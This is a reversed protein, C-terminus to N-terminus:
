RQCRCVVNRCMASTWYTCQRRTVGYRRALRMDGPADSSRARVSAPRREQVRSSGAGRASQRMCRRVTSMPGRGTQLILPRSSIQERLAVGPLDSPMQWECQSRERPARGIPLRTWVVLLYKSTVMRAEIGERTSRLRAAEARRSMIRLKHPSVPAEDSFANSKENRRASGASGSQAVDYPVKCCCRICALDPSSRRCTGTLM